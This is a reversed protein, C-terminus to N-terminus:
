GRIQHVPVDMRVAYDITNKTGGPQGTYVAIVRASHDVMWRNRRQYVGPHYGNSIVRVLDAQSCINRYRQQWAQSWRKEFGPHPIACILKLHYGESRLQLVIEAAWIDVGRSMGTIYTTYGDTIADRIERDIDSSIDRESRGLKEPRHGTFCCSHLRLEAETIM